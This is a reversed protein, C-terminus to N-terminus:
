ACFRGVIDPARRDVRAQEVPLPGQQVLSAWLQSELLERAKCADTPRIELDENVYPMPSLLAHLEEGVASAALQEGVGPTASSAHLEDGVAADISLEGEAAARITAMNKAASFMGQKTLKADVLEELIDPEVEGGKEVIRAAAWTRARALLAQGLEEDSPQRGTTNQLDDVISPLHRLAVQWANPLSKALSGDLSKQSLAADVSSAVYLHLRADLPCKKLAELACVLAEAMYEDANGAHSRQHRRLAMDVRRVLLLSVSALLAEQAWEVVQAFLYVQRAAASRTKDTRARSLRGDAQEAGEHAERFTGLLQAQAESTLRVEPLARFPDWEPGGRPAQTSLHELESVATM